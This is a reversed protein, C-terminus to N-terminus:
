AEPNPTLYVRAPSVLSARETRMQAGSFRPVFSLEIVRGCLVDARTNQM